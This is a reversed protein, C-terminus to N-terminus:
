EYRLFQKTDADFVAVRGDKTKRKVENVMPQQEGGGLLDENMYRINKAKSSELAKELNDLIELNVDPYNSLSAQSQEFMKREADSDIAKSMGKFMKTMKTLSLDNFAQRLKQGEDSAGTIYQDIPGTDAFKGKKALDKMLTKARRVKEIQEDVNSIADKTTKIEKKKFKDDELKQKVEAKVMEKEEFTPEKPKEQGYLKQVKGDDGVKVLDDGVKFINKKDIPQGSKRIKYEDLLAQIDARKDAMVDKATSEVKAEQFPKLGVQVGAKRQVDAAGINGLAKAINAYLARKRDDERAAKVDAKSESRIQKMQDLLKEEYSPEPKEQMYPSEAQENVQEIPEVSAPERQITNAPTGISVATDEEKKKLPDLGLLLDQLNKGEFEM